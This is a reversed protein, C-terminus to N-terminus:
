DRWVQLVNQLPCRCLEPVDSSRWLRRASGDWNAAGSRGTHIRRTSPSLCWTYPTRRVGVGCSVCSLLRQMDSQSHLRERETYRWPSMPVLQYATREPERSTLTESVEYWWTFDPKFKPESKFHKFSLPSIHSDYCLKQWWMLLTVAINTITAMTIMKKKIIEVQECKWTCFCLINTFLLHLILKVNSVTTLQM